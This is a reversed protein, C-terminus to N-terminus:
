FILDSLKEKTVDAFLTERADNANERMHSQLAVMAVFVCLLDVDSIAESFLTDRDVDNADQEVQKEATVHSYGVM